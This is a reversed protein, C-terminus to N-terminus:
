NKQKQALFAIIFSVFIGSLYKFPMRGHTVESNTFAVDHEPWWVRHCFIRIELGWPLSCM